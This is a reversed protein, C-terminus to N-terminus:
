SRRRYIGKLLIVGEDNKWLGQFLVVMGRSGPIAVPPVVGRVINRVPM